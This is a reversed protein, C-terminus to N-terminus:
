RLRLKRCGTPPIACNTARLYDLSRGHAPRGRYLYLFLGNGPTLWTQQAREPIRAISIPDRPFGVSLNTYNVFHISASLPSRFRHRAIARSRPHSPRLHRISGRIRSDFSLLFYSSPSPIICLPKVHNKDRSITRRIKRAVQLVREIIVRSREAERWSISNIM